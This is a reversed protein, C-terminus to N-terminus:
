QGAAPLDDDDLHPSLHLDIVRGIQDRDRSRLLRVISQHSAVLRGRPPQGVHGVRYGYEWFFKQLITGLTVLFPNGSASLLTHHFEEHLATVEAPDDAELMASAIEDLRDLDASSAREMVLEYLGREWIVRVELYDTESLPETGIWAAIQQFVDSDAIDAVYTGSGQTVRLMGVGNLSAVAQRLVNRSVGLSAALSPEAPLRTGPALRNKVIFERLATAAGETLRQHVVPELAIMSENETERM